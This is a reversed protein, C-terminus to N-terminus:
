LVCTTSPAPLLVGEKLLHHICGPNARARASPRLMVGGCLLHHDTRTSPTPPASHTQQLVSGAPSHHITHIPFRNPGCSSVRQLVSGRPLSSYGSHSCSRVCVQDFSVAKLATIALVTNARPHHLNLRRLVVPEETSSSHTLHSSQIYAPLLVGLPRHDVLCCRNGLRDCLPIGVDM